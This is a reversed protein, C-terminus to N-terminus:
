LGMLLAQRDFDPVNKRVEDFSGQFILSGKDLYLVVDAGRVTSLRHAITIVTVEGKLAQISNAIDSETQGDLSSTAEDLVLIKPSTSLARAIGLRQRQGGSIKTGREGVQTNLGNPLSKVYEELEALRIANWVKELEIEDTNYGLCVNELISGNIITVDQPVYAIAGEWKKISDLPSVGSVLVNGSCPTIVGLILDVLTTKGAGSPGVLCAIKGEAIKLSVDDITKEPSNPYCFSVKELTIEAKFGLYNDSNAKSMFHAEAKHGKLREILELTPLSVGLSSKMQLAGQQIRLAAPAIRSGAALFIALTAIAHTADQLVFQIASLLLAGLIVVSEIVYKSILPMFAVEASIDGLSHRIKSIEKAYYSRRGKVVLERYASFVETLKEYSAIDFRSRDVGLIKARKNLLFYLLVGILSFIVVCSTAIVPDVLFLGVSLILMLSTDSVISVINGIVGLMIANIGATLAYINEQTSKLRVELMPRSLLKSILDSSAAASKHALFFFIRRSLYVTLLTRFIFVVGAIIGLIAVQSHFNFKELGIQQLVSTVRSGAPKSQIGNVTLAGIVGIIAVGVLDLVSLLIQVIAVVVIKRQDARTLLNRCNNLLALRSDLKSKLTM